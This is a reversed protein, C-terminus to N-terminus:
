PVQESVKVLQPLATIAAAAIEQVEEVPGREIAPYLERVPGSAEEVCTRVAVVYKALEQGRLPELKAIAAVLDSSAKALDVAYAALLREGALSAQDFGGPDPLAFVAAMQDLSEVMEAVPFPRVAVRPESASVGGGAERVSVDGCRLHQSRELLVM